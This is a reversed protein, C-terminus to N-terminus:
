LYHKSVESIDSYIKTIGKEKEEKNIGQDNVILVNRYRRFAPDDLNVDKGSNVFVPMGSLMYDISTNNDMSVKAGGKKVLENYAKNVFDARYVEEDSSLGTDMLVYHKGDRSDLAFTKAKSRRHDLVDKHVIKPESVREKLYGVVNDLFRENGKWGGVLYFRMDKPDSGRETMEEFIQDNLHRMRNGYVNHSMAAIRNNKDYIGLVICSKIDQAGVLPKDDDTTAAENTDIIRIYNDPGFYTEPKNMSKLGSGLDELGENMRSRLGKIVM